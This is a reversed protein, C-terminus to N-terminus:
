LNQSHLLFQNAPTSRSISRDVGDIHGYYDRCRELKLAIILGEEYRRFVRLFDAYEYLVDLAVAHKKALSVVDDYIETIENAIDDSYGRARLQTILFRQGSIYGKLSEKAKETAKGAVEMELQIEEKWGKDRLISFAKEYDSEQEICNVAEKERFDLTLPGQIKEFTTFIGKVMDQKLRKLEQQEKELNRYSSAMKKKNATTPKQTYVESAEAYKQEALKVQNEKEAVIKLHYEGFVNETHLVANGDVEIM